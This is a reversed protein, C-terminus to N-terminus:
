GEARGDAEERAADRDRRMLEEIETPIAGGARAARALGNRAELGGDDTMVTVRYGERQPPDRLVLSPDMLWAPPGEVAAAGGAEARAVDADREPVVWALDRLAAFVDHETRAGHGQGGAEAQRKRRMPM